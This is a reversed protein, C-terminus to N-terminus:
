SYGLYGEIYVDTRQRSVTEEPEQVGHSRAYHEHQRNLVM